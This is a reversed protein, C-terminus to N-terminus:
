LGILTIVDGMVCHAHVPYAALMCGEASLEQLNNLFLNSFGLLFAPWFYSLLSLFFFSMSMHDTVM